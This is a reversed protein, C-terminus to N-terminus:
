KQKVLNFEKKLKGNNSKWIGQAEQGTYSGDDCKIGENTEKQDQYGVFKITFVGDWTNDGPEKLIAEYAISCPQDWAGEKYTGKIPRKKGNLINDGELEGNSMGGISIILKKGDMEGQWNGVLIDIATMDVSNEALIIDAETLEKQNSVSNKKVFDDSSNDIVEKYNETKEFHIENKPLGRKCASIVILALFFIKNINKM